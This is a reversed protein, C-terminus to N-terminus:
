NFNYKKKIPEVIRWTCNTGVKFIVLDGEKFSVKEGESTKVEAEGELILCTETSDYSWPFESVEKEWIPWNQAEEIEEETPKRVEINM